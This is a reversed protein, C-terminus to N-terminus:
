VHAKQSRWITSLVLQHRDFEAKKEGLILYAIGKWCTGITPEQGFLRRIDDPKGYIRV